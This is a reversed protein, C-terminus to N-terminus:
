DKRIIRDAVFASLRAAKLYQNNFSYFSVPVDMKFGNRFEIVTTSKKTSSPYFDYINNFSIWIANSKTPSSIPFFVVRTSEEIIIPAKYKTKIFNRSGKLRSIYSAGFYECSHEIVNFSSKNLTYTKSDEMVKCSQSGSPIVALTHDNIEYNM